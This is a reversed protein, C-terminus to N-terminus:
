RGRKTWAKIYVTVTTGASVTVSDAAFLVRGEPVEVTFDPFAIARQSSPIGVLSLDLDDNRMWLGVDPDYLWAKLTGAGSLTRTAEAAVMVRFGGVDELSMGDTAAAPTAPSRTLAQSESWVRTTGILAM